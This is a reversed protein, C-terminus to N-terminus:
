KRKARTLAYNHSNILILEWYFAKKPSEHRTHSLFTAVTLERQTNKRYHHSDEYVAHIMLSVM